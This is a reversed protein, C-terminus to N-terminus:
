GPLRISAPRGPDQPLGIPVSAGDVRAAEVIAARSTHGAACAYSTSCSTAGADDRGTKCRGDLGPRQRRDRRHRCPGLRTRYARPPTAVYRPHRHLRDQVPATSPGRHNSFCLRVLRTRRRTAGACCAAADEWEPWLAARAHTASRREGRGLPITPRWETANRHLCGAALDDEHWRTM